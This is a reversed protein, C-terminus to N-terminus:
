RLLENLVLGGLTHIRWRPVKSIGSGGVPTPTGVHSAPSVWRLFEKGIM